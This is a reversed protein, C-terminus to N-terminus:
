SITIESNLLSLRINIVDNFTHSFWIFLRIFFLRFVQQFLVFIVSQSLGFLVIDTLVSQLLWLEVFNVKRKNMRFSQRRFVRTRFQIAIALLLIVFSYMVFVQCSLKLHWFFISLKPQTGLSQSKRSARIMLAIIRVVSRYLWTSASFDTMKSLTRYHLPRFSNGRLYILVCTWFHYIRILDMFRLM